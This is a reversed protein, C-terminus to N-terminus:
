SLEERIRQAISALAADVDRVLVGYPTTVHVDGRAVEHDAEVETGARFPVSKLREADAPNVHVVCSGRGVGSVALTERVIKEIDHQGVDIERRVLHRAIEVALAVADSALRAAAADRAADLTEIARALGGAATELAETRGAIRGAEHARQEREAALRDLFAQTTGGVVAVRVPPRELRVAGASHTVESSL